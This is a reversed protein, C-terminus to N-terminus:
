KYCIVSLINLHIILSMIMSLYWHISDPVLSQSSNLCTKNMITHLISYTNCLTNIYEHFIKIFFEFVFILLLKNYFSIAKDRNVIESDGNWNLAIKFKKYIFTM